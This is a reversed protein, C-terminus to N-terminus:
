YKKDPVRCIWSDALKPNLDHAKLTVRAPEACLRFEREWDKAKDAPVITEIRGQEIWNYPTASRTAVATDPADGKEVWTALAELLREPADTPGIGGRCNSNVRHFRVPNFRSTM